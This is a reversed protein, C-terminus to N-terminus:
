LNAKAAIRKLAAQATAEDITVNKYPQTLAFKYTYLGKAILIAYERENAITAAPLFRTSLNGVKGADGTGANIDATKHAAANKYQWVDVYVSGHTDNKTVVYYTATQGRNGGVSIVGSDDVDSVSKLLSGFEDQVTSKKVINSVGLNAGKVQFVSFGNAGVGNQAGQNRNPFGQIILVLVALSVGALLLIGIKKGVTSTLFRKFSRSRNNSRKTRQKTKM